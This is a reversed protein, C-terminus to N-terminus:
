HLKFWHHPLITRAIEALSKAYWHIGVESSTRRLYPFSRIPLMAVHALTESGIVGYCSAVTSDVVVTGHATLPAYLGNGTVTAVSEVRSPRIEFGGRIQITTYVYQGPFIDGAFVARRTASFSNSCNTQTAIFLMHNATLRITELQSRIEIYSGGVEPQKDLFMLVESYVPKGTTRDVALIRDGVNVENMPIISGSENRVESVGDFCGGYKAADSNDARVSAHVYFKSEYYVWDFGSEVALRALLGNKSLDNDSTKIDVARGEYHLSGKRHIGDGDWAEIVKLSVGAWTNKVLMSLLNVKDKCRKTMTRDSGDRERDEFEIDTNYNRELKRYRPTNRYIRGESPGSAGITGESVHPVYQQRLLPRLNRQNPRTGYRPGSGCSIVMYVCLFNTLLLVYRKSYPM